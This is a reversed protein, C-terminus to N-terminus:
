DERKMSPERFKKTDLLKGDKPDFQHIVVVGNEAGCWRSKCKVEIKGNVIEFHKHSECRGEANM